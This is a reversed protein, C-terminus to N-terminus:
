DIIFKEFGFEKEEQIVKKIGENLPVKDQWGLIRLKENNAKSEMIENERYSLSGFILNTNSQTIKHVQEIFYRITVTKNTGLEYECFFDSDKQKLLTNYASVVDDIYIFDRKQNGPTLALETVNRLCSKIIFTTFKTDDDFPGYIHELRVNIFRIKSIAAFQKGWELFQRKTLAYRLLHQYGNNNKNIFSDTNIFFGVKYKTAIELLRLPFLVNSEVIESYKEGHRDYQTATHIIADINKHERFIKELTYKDIDYSSIQLLVDSLRWTNSFSRKLIIVEHDDKLLAKVLHSGLFGTAGTVLIKM